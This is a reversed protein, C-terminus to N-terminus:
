YREETHTDSVNTSGINQIRQLLGTGEKKEVLSFYNLTVVIVFYVYFLYTFLYFVSYLIGISAGLDKISIYMIGGVLVGFLLGLIGSAFSIIISAIIYILLSSWFNQSTLFFCRRVINIFSAEEEFVIVQSAITIVIGIYIAVFLLPLMAIVTLIPSVVASIGIVAGAVICIIFGALLTFWLVKWVYRLTSEWVESFQPSQNGKQMYLKVYVNPVTMITASTLMLAAFMVVIAPISFNKYNEIIEAGGETAANFIGGYFKGLTFGFLITFMLIAVGAILMYSKVLPKFEQKLFNLADSILDGFYRVKRFEVKPKVM